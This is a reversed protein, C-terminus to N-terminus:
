DLGLDKVFEDDDSFDRVGLQERIIRRVGERVREYLWVRKSGTFDLANLKKFILDIAMRPTILAAAEEDLIEIEFVEEWAMVLDVADLGM